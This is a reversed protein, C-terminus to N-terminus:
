PTLSMDATAPDDGRSDGESSLTGSDGHNGAPSDEQGVARYASWVLLGAVAAGLATALARKKLKERTRERDARLSLILESLDGHSNGAVPLPIYTEEAPQERWSSERDIVTASPRLWLNASNIKAALEDGGFFADAAASPQRESFHASAPPAINLSFDYLRM